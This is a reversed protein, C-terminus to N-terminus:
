LTGKKLEEIAPILFEAFRKVDGSLKSTIADINFKKIGNETVIEFYIGGGDTCDPCGFVEDDKTTTLLLNPIHEVISSALLSKRNDNIITEFNIEGHNKFYSDTYDALLTNVNGMMNYEFMTACHNGCEGHYIGFIIRRIKTNNKVVSISDQKNLGSKPDTSQNCSLFILFFLIINLRPM